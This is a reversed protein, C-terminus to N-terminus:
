GCGSGQPSERHSLSFRVRDRLSTCCLPYRHFPNLALLKLTDPSDVSIASLPEAGFFRQRDAIFAQAKKEESFFMIHPGNRKPPIAQLPRAEFCVLWGFPNEMEQQRLAIIQDEIYM